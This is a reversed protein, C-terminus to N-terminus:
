GNRSHQGSWHSGAVRAEAEKEAIDEKSLHIALLYLSLIAATYGQTEPPVLEKESIMPLFYDAAKAAHSDKEQSFCMTICGGRRAKELAEITSTSTGSQSIGVALIEGERYIGSPNIAECDIFLLPEHASAEVKAYRSFYMAALRAAHHSTGSGFFYVRKIPHTEFLQKLPEITESRREFATKLIEPQRLIYDTMSPNM